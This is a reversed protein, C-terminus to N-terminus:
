KYRKSRWCPSVVRSFSSIWTIPAQVPFSLIFIIIIIILYQIYSYISFCLNSSHKSNRGPCGEYNSIGNNDCIILNIYLSKTLQRYYKNNSNKPLRVPKSPSFNIWSFSAWLHSPLICFHYQKLWHSRPFYFITFVRSSHSM